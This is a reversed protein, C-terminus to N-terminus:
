TPMLPAGNIAIKKVEPKFILLLFVQNHSIWM